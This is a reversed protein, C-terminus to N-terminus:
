REPIPVDIKGQRVAHVFEWSHYHRWGGLDSLDLDDVVIRQDADPYLEGLLRVRERRRPWETRPKGTSREHSRDTDDSHKGELIEAVGAVDVEGTLHQNGRAWVENPTKRAPCRIWSLPVAEGDESPPPQQSM